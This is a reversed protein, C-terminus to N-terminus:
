CVVEVMESPPRFPFVYSVVVEIWTKSAFLLKIPVPQAVAVAVRKSYIVFFASEANFEFSMRRFNLRKLQKSQCAIKKEFNILIEGTKLNREM